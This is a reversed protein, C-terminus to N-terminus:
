SAENMETIFKKLGLSLQNKTEELISIPPMTKVLVEIEKLPTSRRNFKVRETARALKYSGMFNPKVRKLKGNKNKKKIVLFVDCELDYTYTNSLAPFPAYKVMTGVEVVMDYDSTAWDPTSAGMVLNIKQDKFEGILHEAIIRNIDSFEEPLPAAGSSVTSTTSPPANFSSKRNVSVNDVTVKLNSSGTIAINLSDKFAQKVDLMNGLTSNSLLLSLTLSCALITRFYKLM